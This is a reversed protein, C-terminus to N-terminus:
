HVKKLAFVSANPDRYIRIDILVPDNAFMFMRNTASFVEIGSTATNPPNRFFIRESPNAACISMQIRPQSPSNLYQELDTIDFLFSRHNASVQNTTVKETIESHIKQFVQDTPDGDQQYFEVFYDNIPNDYQDHVRFVVHMYRHYWEPHQGAMGEQFTQTLIGQCNTFHRGYDPATITLADIITQAWQAQQVPEAPDHISGHNRHFVAFAIPSFSRPAEVLTPLKPNSFDVRFYHANLNATSVRVTGDSGDEHVAARLGEYPATGVLITTIVNEPSFLRVDGNFLDDQALQFSYPSALELADLINKGTQFFHDWDWGEWLRGLLSKGLKALPSGFNAPALMCLHHIPTQSADGKCVQRLYERAVLGGTSHVILDFSYRDQPVNKDQLARQFAFGLDYLTIEDNMSLYDGLYIDVTQFGQGVLWNALTQFSASTDSWGHLIIVPLM